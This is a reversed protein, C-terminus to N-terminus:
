VILIQGDYAPAVNPPTEATVTDHDFRHSIHTLFAQKPKLEAIVDLAQYLGFHTPHPDYRVADLL